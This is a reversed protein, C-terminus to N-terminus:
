NQIFQRCIGALEGNKYVLTMGEDAIPIVFSYIQSLCVALLALANFILSESSFKDVASITLVLVELVAIKVTIGDNLYTLLPFLSLARM